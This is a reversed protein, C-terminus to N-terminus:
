QQLLRGIRDLEAVRGAEYLGSETDAFDLCAHARRYAARADVLMGAETLYDGDKALLYGLFEIRTWDLRHATTLEEVLMDLPLAQVEHLPLECYQESAEALVERAGDLPLHLLKATVEALQKIMRQVFDRQIM